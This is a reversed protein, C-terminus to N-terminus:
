SVEGRTLIHLVPVNCCEKCIVCFYKDHEVITEQDDGLQKTEGNCDYVYMGFRAHNHKKYNHYPPKPM